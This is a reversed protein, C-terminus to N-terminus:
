YSVLSRYAAHGAYCMVGNNYGSGVKRSSTSVPLLYFKREPAAVNVVALYFTSPLLYFLLGVREVEEGKMKENETLLGAPRLEIHKV